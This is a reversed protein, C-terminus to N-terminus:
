VGQLKYLLAQFSVRDPNAYAESAYGDCNRLKLGETMSLGMNIAVKGASIM